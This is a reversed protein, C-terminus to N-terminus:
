VGEKSSISAELKRRLEYQYSTPRCKKGCYIARNFIPVFKKGCSTCPKEDLSLSPNEEIHKWNIGQVVSRVGSPKIGIIKAIEVYERGEKRLKRALIVQEMTVKAKGHRRKKSERDRTNDLNTGIFLHDPKICRPNDCKHCVFMGEPIQGVYETYSLRHVLCTRYKDEIRVTIMGYGKKNRFGMWELCGTEPNLASKQTLREKM